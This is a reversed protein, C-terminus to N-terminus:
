AKSALAKAVGPQTQTDSVTYALQRGFLGGAANIEKVALKVGNNFNTGATAGAGSLEAIGAIPIPQASVGAGVLSLAMLGGQFFSRMIDGPFGQVQLLAIYPRGRVADM